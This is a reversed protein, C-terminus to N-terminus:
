SSKSLIECDISIITFYSKFDSCRDNENCIDMTTDYVFGNQVYIIFYQVIPPRMYRCLLIHDNKLYANEDYFGIVYGTDIM